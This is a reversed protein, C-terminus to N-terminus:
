HKFRRAGHLRGLGCLALDTLYNIDHTHTHAVCFRLCTLLFPVLRIIKLTGWAFVIMATDSKEWTAEREYKFVSGPGSYCM